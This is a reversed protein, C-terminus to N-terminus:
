KFDMEPLWREKHYEKIIIFSQKRIAGPFKSNLEAMIELLKDVNEVIVESLIDSWGIAMDIYELYPKEALFDLIPRKKSYDKLYIDIGFKQLDLKSTDIGVRFAQIIGNKMLNKIRYNVAQSSCGLKEALEILPIRANM